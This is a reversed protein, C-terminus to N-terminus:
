ESGLRGNPAYFGGRERILDDFREDLGGAVTRAAVNALAADPKTPELFKAWEADITFRNLNPDLVLLSDPFAHVVTYRRNASDYPSHSVPALTDGRKFRTTLDSM